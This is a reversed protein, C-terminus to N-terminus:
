SKVEQVLNRFLALCVIFCCVGLAYVLPYEPLQLEQTYQGSEWISTGFPFSMWGFLAFVIIGLSRNIIILSKQWVRPLKDMLFEMCIHKKALTTQPVSFGIAIVGFIPIVEYTWDFPMRLKRLIVDCVTLLMISIIAVGAVRHLFRSIKEIVIFLMKM